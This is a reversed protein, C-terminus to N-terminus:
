HRWRGSAVASRRFSLPKGSHALCVQVRLRGDTASRESVPVYRGCVACLAVGRWKRETATLMALGEMRCVCVVIARVRACVGM